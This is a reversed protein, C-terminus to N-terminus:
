KTNIYIDVNGFDVGNNTKYMLNKKIKKYEILEKDHNVYDETSCKFNIKSPCTEILHLNNLNLGNNTTFMPTKRLNFTCHSDPSQNMLLFKPQTAISNSKVLNKKNNGWVKGYASLITESISNVTLDVEFDNGVGNIISANNGTITLKVNYWTNLQFKYDTYFSVKRNNNKPLSVAISFPSYKGKFGLSLNPIDGEKTRTTKGNEYISKPAMVGFEIKNEFKEIIKKEPNGDDIKGGGLKIPRDTDYIFSILDSSRRTIRKVFDMGISKDADRFTTSPFRKLKFDFSIVYQSMNQTIEHLYGFVKKGDQKYLSLIPQGDYYFVDDPIGFVYKDIGIIKNSVSPNHKPILNVDTQATYTVVKNSVQQKTDTPHYSFVSVYNDKTNYSLYNLKSIVDAPLKTISTSRNKSINEANDKIQKITENDDKTKNDKSLLNKLTRYSNEIQNKLANDITAM